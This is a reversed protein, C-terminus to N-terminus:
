EKSTEPGEATIKVETKKTKKRNTLWGILALAASAALKFIEGKDGNAVKGWDTDAVGVAAAGTGALTTVTNAAGDFFQKM